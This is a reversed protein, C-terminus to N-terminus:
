KYICHFFYNSKLITPRMHTNIKLFSIHKGIIGLLRTFRTKQTKKKEEIAPPSSAKEKVLKTVLEKLFEIM